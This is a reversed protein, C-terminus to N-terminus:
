AGRPVVIVPVPAHRVIRTADSGLFLRSVLGASSSGVVLVDGPQWDLQELADTWSAGTAVTTEVDDPALDGLAAVAREQEASTREVYADTVLQEGLVEPPYMTRGRVGFTAVRLSAGVERCIRASRVLVEHSAADGRFACTARRVRTGADARHGRIAVAVPVPSSHLLRDATSGVVVSGWAGHSASGVVVLAAGHQEAQEILAAAASSASVVVVEAVLGDCHEALAEQARAAAASGQERSWRAFEKDPGGSVPTPWPAPVVTVVRLDQGASRALTAALQLASRDDKHPPHGVVITM